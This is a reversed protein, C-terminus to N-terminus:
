IQGHVDELLDYMLHALMGGLVLARSGCHSPSFASVPSCSGWVLSRVESARQWEASWRSVMGQM